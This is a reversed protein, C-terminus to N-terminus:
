MYKPFCNCRKTFHTIRRIEMPLPCVIQAEEDPKCVKVSLTDFPNGEEHYGMLKESEEPKWINNDVHFGRVAASFIINKDTINEEKLKGFHKSINSM